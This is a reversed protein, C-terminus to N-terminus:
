EEWEPKSPDYRLIDDYFVRIIELLSFTAGLHGRQSHEFIRIVQQRFYFSREDLKTLLGPQTETSTLFNSM